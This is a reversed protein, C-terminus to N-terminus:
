ERQRSALEQRSLSSMAQKAVDQLSPKHGFGMQSSSEHALISRQRGTLNLRKRSTKAMDEWVTPPNPNKRAGFKIKDISFHTAQTTTFRLNDFDKDGTANGVADFNKGYHMNIDPSLFRKRAGYVVKSRGLPSENYNDLDTADFHLTTHLM